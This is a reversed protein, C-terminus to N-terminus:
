IILQPLGLGLESWGTQNALSLVWLQMAFSVVHRLQLTCMCVCVLVCVYVCVCVCLCARLYLQKHIHVHVNYKKFAWGCWGREQQQRTIVSDRTTVAHSLSKSSPRACPSGFPEMKSNIDLDTIRLLMYTGYGSAVIVM